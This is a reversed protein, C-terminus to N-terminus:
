RRTGTAAPPRPPPHGPVLVASGHVRGAALDALARNAEELGYRRLDQRLGGAAARRLVAAVDARTVNAVSRLTREWWLDAYPFAPIADIHVANVVLTGGRALSRLARVVVEGAPAFTVAADVPEPLPEEAPGAWAAGLARARERDPASRTSVSVRCDMDRALQLVYTASAGFGFLGLRGGPAVGTLALSRGGIAGACLLPAAEVDGLADPIRVAFGARVRVREAYGGDVDWGTFRADACLNERGERCRPCRGCAQALWAVGARDGARWGRVGDGVERVRGVVQHGPVLPRRRAPLDGECIQLDTRCVACALVDLVLDGPGARPDPVDAPVLPLSAAPAPDRLVM